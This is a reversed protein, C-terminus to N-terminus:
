KAMAAWEQETPMICGPLEMAAHELCVKNKDFLSEDGTADHLSVNAFYKTGQTATWHRRIHLFNSCRIAHLVDAIKLGDSKSVELRGSYYIRSDSKFSLTLHLMAQQVPPHTLYTKALSSEGFYDIERHFEVLQTTSYFARSAKPESTLDPRKLAHGLRVPKFAVGLNEDTRAIYTSKVYRFTTLWDSNPFEADDKAAVRWEQAETGDSRLFLRQQLKISSAVIDRFQKCVRQIVFIKRPPLQMVINELLEATDFVARRAADTTMGHTIRRTTNEEAAKKRSAHDVDAKRKKPAM